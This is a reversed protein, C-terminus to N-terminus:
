RMQNNIREYIIVGQDVQGQRGRQHYYWAIGERAARRQPFQDHGRLIIRSFGYKSLGRILSVMHFPICYTSCYWICYGISRQDKNTNVLDTVKRPLLANSQLYGSRSSIIKSIISFSSTNTRALICRM